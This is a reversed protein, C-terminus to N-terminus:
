PTTLPEEIIDITMDELNIVIRSSTTSSGVGTLTILKNTSTPHVDLISTDRPTHTNIGIQNKRYSVTPVVNYVLIEPSVVTKTKSYNNYVTEGNSQKTGQQSTVTQVRIKFNKTDWDHISGTLLVPQSISSDPNTTPPNSPFAYIDTQRDTEDTQKDKWVLIDNRSRAGNGNNFSDSVTYNVIINNKDTATISNITITPAIHKIVDVSVESSEKGDVRNSDFAIVKWKKETNGSIATIRGLSFTDKFTSLKWTWGTQGLEAYVSNDQYLPQSSVHSGDRLVRAFYLGPFGTITYGISFNLGEQMCLYSYEDNDTISTTIALSNPKPHESFNVTLNSEKSSFVNGFSDEFKLRIKAAITNTASVLNTKTSDNQQKEFLDAFAITTEYRINNSDFVLAKATSVTNVWNDTTYELTALISDANELAIGTLDITTSLSRIESLYPKFAANDFSLSFNLEKLFYITKTIIKYQPTITPTSSFAGNKFPFKLTVTMSAGYPYDGSDTDYHSCFGNALSDSDGSFPHYGRNDMNANSNVYVIRENLQNLSDDTINGQIYLDKNIYFLNGSNQITKNSYVNNKEYNYFNIVPNGSPNWPVWDDESLSGDRYESNKDDFKILYRFKEYGTHIYLYISKVLLDSLDGGNEKKAFYFDGSYLTISDGYSINLDKQFCRVQLYPQAATERSSAQTDGFNLDIDTELTRTLDKVDMIGTIKLTPELSVRSLNAKKPSSYVWKNSVQSGARLALHLYQGRQTGSISFTYHNSGNSADLATPTYYFWTSYKYSSPPNSNDSLSWDIYYGRITSDGTMPQNWRIEFEINGNSDPVLIRKLFVESPALPATAM